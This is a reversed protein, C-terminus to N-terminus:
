GKRMAAVIRAAAGQPQVALASQAAGEHQIKASVSAPTIVRANPATTWSSAELAASASAGDPGGVTAIGSNVNSEEIASSLEAITRAQEPLPVVVCHSAEMTGLGAITEVTVLDTGFCKRVSAAEDSYNVWHVHDCEGENYAGWMGTDGIAEPWGMFLSRRGRAFISLRTPDGLTAQQFAISATKGPFTFQGESLTLGRQIYQPLYYSDARDVTVRHVEWRTGAACIAAPVAPLFIEVVEGEPAPFANRHAGYCLDFSHFWQLRLPDGGAAPANVWQLSGRMRRTRDTLFGFNMESVLNPAAQSRMFWNGLNTIPNLGVAGVSTGILNVEYGLVLTGAPVKDQVLGATLADRGGIWEPNRNLYNM